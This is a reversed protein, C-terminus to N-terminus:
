RVEFKVTLLDGVGEKHGIHGDEGVWFFVEEVSTEDFCEKAITRSVVGVAGLGEVDGGM